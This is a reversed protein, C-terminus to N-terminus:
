KLLAHDFTQTGRNHNLVFCLIAFKKFAYKYLINKNFMDDLKNCDNESM